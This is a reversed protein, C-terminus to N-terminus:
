SNLDCVCEGKRWILETYVFYIVFDTKENYCIQFIFGVNKGHYLVCVFHFWEFLSNQFNLIYLALTCAICSMEYCLLIFVAEIM